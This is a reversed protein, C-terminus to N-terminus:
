KTATTTPLSKKVKSILPMVVLQTLVIAASVKLIFTVTEKSPMLKM